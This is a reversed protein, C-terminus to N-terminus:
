KGAKDPMTRALWDFFIRQWLIGNQPKLIWHNEDPFYLFRSPIGEVQAATFAEMGQTVPVRFDKEGHIVLLPTKWNGVFEHPSFREYDRKHASSRWYPGGLDFNVFFLEETSGYMSELNFVGAHAIMSAFRDGGNGMMWYATYGGFSAGVGAVRSRDVYPEGLMADTSALIDRMAQGGWDKSIEDNWAQGFGPLGRRNVAVVVYGQAAMLHFNWRISFWQGIQGQPGGQFYVLLPYKKTADFGPPKILWNHIRKGDTADVWREEVTPLALTKYVDDNVQTLARMGARDASWLYLETPRLMSQRAFLRAKGDHFIAKLSWNFAGETVTELKRDKLSLRYVQDTGKTESRFFVSEEDHAWLPEHATQDVGLTADWIAGSVHDRVMIRNKDAEFGPREMSLWLLYRGSPSYVPEQDYGMMGMTINVRVVEGQLAKETDVTYIDSNTSEAFSPVDKMVFAIERGDPSWSIQETGGFPPVPCNVLLGEMLNVAKSVHGDADLAAIHLHSYTSDRFTDWHRYMLQDFVQGTALPLDRYLDATTQGLKVSRTFALHRGTPAVKLNSLGGALKTIREFTKAAPDFSWVQADSDGERKGIGFVRPGAATSVWQLDSLRENSLFLPSAVGGLLPQSYWTTANRNEAIVSRTVSWLVVKGDPSPLGGGVRGMEWLSEPTLVNQGSALPLLPLCLVLLVLKTFKMM